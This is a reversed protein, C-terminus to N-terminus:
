LCKFMDFSQHYVKVSNGSFLSNLAVFIEGKVNGMNASESWLANSKAVTDNHASVENEYKTQVTKM